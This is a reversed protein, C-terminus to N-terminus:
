VQPSQKAGTDQEVPVDGGVMALAVPLLWLGHAGAILTVLLLSKFFSQFVFSNSTSLAIVALLTSLIAHFVSPGIRTLSRMSREVAIGVSSMFAHAIHASYDVALGVCILLYITTVGNLKLGFYYCFGIIEVIALVINVAVVAAIRPQPILLAVIAVIVGFSIIINRSFEVDIIGNEEWYLFASNFPFVYDDASDFIEKFDRRMGM